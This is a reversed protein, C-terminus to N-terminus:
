KIGNIRMYVRAGEYEFVQIYERDIMEDLEPFHTKEPLIVMHKPQSKELNAIVYDHKHLDAVHFNVIYKGGTPLRKTLNYITADSGWLYLKDEPAMRQNLYEAITYNRRAGDFRYFYQQKSIDRKTYEYFDRYIPLNPYGWFGIQRNTVGAWLALYMVVLWGAINEIVFLYPLLLSLPVVPEQLYHPYPRGSLLSGFFAFGFWLSALVLGRPLKKRVLYVLLSLGMLVTARVVLGSRFPNFSYQSTSWSSVYGLNMTLVTDLYSQGDGKLYYYGFSLLLPVAFCILYVWFRRSLLARLSEGWTNKGFVFVFLAVAAVDTAVPVKFLWGVGAVLGAIAIRTYGGQAKQRQGKEWFPSLLLLSATVPVMMFLEANAINGELVPLSTLIVFLLGSINALIPRTKPLVKKALNYFLVTHLIMTALLMGRFLFVTNGIGALIYLLPPKHDFMAEYMPVNESWARGMVFYIEEDGYHHPTFLTPIRLVFVLILLFLLWEHKNCWRHLKTLRERM